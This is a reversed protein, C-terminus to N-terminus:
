TDWLRLPINEFVISDLGTVTIGLLRVSLDQSEEEWISVAIQFLMEETDIYDPFTRRRTYTQFDEYRIKLVVTKGHKQKKKMNKMVKTSLERLAGVIDNESNLNQSFTSEKGISKPERNNKVESDDIGRVKRYLSHGMKGFHKVLEVRVAQRDGPFHFREAQQDAADGGPWGCCVTGVPKEDSGGEPGAVGSVAM